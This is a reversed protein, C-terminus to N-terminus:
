LESDKQINWTFEIGYCSCNHKFNYYFFSYEPEGCDKFYLKIIYKDIYQHFFTNDINITYAEIDSYNRYIGSWSNQCDFFDLCFKSCNCKKISLELTDNFDDYFSFILKDTDFITSLIWQGKFHEQISTPVEIRM